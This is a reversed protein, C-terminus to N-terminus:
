NSTRSEGSAGTVGAAVSQLTTVMEPFPAEGTPELAAFTAKDGVPITLMNGVERESGMASNTLQLTLTRPRLGAPAAIAGSWGDAAQLEELDGFTSDFPEEPTISAGVRLDMLLAQLGADVQMGYKTGHEDEYPVTVNAM